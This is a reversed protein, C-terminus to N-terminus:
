SWLSAIVAWTLTDIVSLHAVWCFVSCRGKMDAINSENVIDEIIDPVDLDDM